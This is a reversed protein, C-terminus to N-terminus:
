ARINCDPSRRANRTSGGSCGRAPSGAKIVKLAVARRTKEQEAENVIGIGGDGPLRLIRYRGIMSPLAPATAAPFIM